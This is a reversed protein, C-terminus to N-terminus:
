QHMVDDKYWKMKNWKIYIHFTVTHDLLPKKKFITSFYSENTNRSPFCRCLKEWTYLFFARCWWRPACVSTEIEWVSLVFLHSKYVVTNYIIRTTYNKNVNHKKTTNPATAPHNRTSTPSINLSTSFISNTNEM